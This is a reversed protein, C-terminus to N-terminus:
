LSRSYDSVQQATWDGTTVSHNFAEVRDAARSM